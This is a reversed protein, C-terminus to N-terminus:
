YTQYLIMRDIPPDPAPNLFRGRALSASAGLMELVIAIYIFAAAGSQVSTANM